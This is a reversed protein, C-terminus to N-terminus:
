NGAPPNARCPGDQHIANITVVTHITYGGDEPTTADVTITGAMSRASYTGDFTTRARNRGPTCIVEMRLRGHAAELVPYTCGGGMSMGPLELGGGPRPGASICSHGDRTTGRGAEIRAALEPRLPAGDTRRVEIEAIRGHGLWDGSELGMTRVLNAPTVQPASARCAALALVPWITASVLLVALPRM